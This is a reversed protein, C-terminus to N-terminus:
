DTTARLQRSVDEAKELVRLLNGGLIRQVDSEKYGKELLASLSEWPRPLPTFHRHSAHTAAAAPM